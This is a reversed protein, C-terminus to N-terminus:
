SVLVEVQDVVVVLRRPLAPLLLQLLAGAFAAAEM